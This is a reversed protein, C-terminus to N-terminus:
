CMCIEFQRDYKLAINWDVIIDLIALAVLLLSNINQECYQLIKGAFVTLIGQVRRVGWSLPKSTKSSDM